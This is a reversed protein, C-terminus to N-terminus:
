RRARNVRRRAGTLQPSQDLDLISGVAGRLAGVCLDHLERRSFAQHTLWEVCLVRVYTLWASVAAALRKQARGRVGSAVVLRHALQALEDAIISEIEPCGALVRNAALVTNRNALFYDFHAALGADIQEALPLRPDFTTAAVLQDAARRYVATFLERKGGFHRYVLARSVGARAAVDDLSVEDYPLQAFLEAGAEILEARRQAPTLRRRPTM